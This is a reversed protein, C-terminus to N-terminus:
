LLRGRDDTAHQGAEDRLWRFAPYRGVVYYAGPEEPLPPMTEVCTECYTRYGGANSPTIEIGCGPCKFAINLM